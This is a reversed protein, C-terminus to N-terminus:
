TVILEAPSRLGRLPFLQWVMILIQVTRVMQDRAPRRLRRPNSGRYQTSPCRQRPCQARIDVSRRRMQFPCDM